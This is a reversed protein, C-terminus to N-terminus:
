EVHREWLPAPHPPWPRPPPPAHRATEGFLSLHVTDGDWTLASGDAAGSIDLLRGAGPTQREDYRASLARDLFRRVDSAGAAGAARDRYHVEFGYSLLLKSWLESFLRLDTFIDCGVIRGGWAAVAGVTSAAPLRRFHAAYEDLDRIVAKDEYVQRYDRTPSTVKARESQADIESWIAGQEAGAAASKRLGPHALYGASGFEEYRVSWRDKEGCYVPIEVFGSNPQLLVDNRVMRNQKGGALIEGAMLFISHDSENRVELASVQANDKERVAIWRWSFAEDLARIDPARGRQRLTLPFVTLNRYQWPHEVNVQRILRTVPNDSEPRPRITVDLPTATTKAAPEYDSELYAGFAAPLFGATAALCAFLIKKM